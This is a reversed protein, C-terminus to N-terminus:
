VYLKGGMLKRIEDESYGRKKYREQVIKKLEYNMKAGNKNHLYNHCELCLGVVSLETEHITRKGIGSVVHHLQIIRYQNCYECKGINDIVECRKLVAEKVKKNM